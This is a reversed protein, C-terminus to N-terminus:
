YKKSHFTWLKANNKKRAKCIQEMDLSQKNTGELEKILRVVPTKIKKHRNVHDWETEGNTPKNIIPNTYTAM